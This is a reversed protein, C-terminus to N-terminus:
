NSGGQIHLLREYVLFHGEIVKRYSHSGEIWSEARLRYNSLWESDVAKRVSEVIDEVSWAVLVPAPEPVLWDTSRPDYSMIVPVGAAIGEPATGGFCPLAIQDFLVDVSKQMKYLAAKPLPDIWRVRDYVGLERALTRSDELQMGWNSMLLVFDDGLIRRLEPLARIYKDTGKIAWDHRLPCFFVKASGLKRHLLDYKGKKARISREDIPHLMPSYRTVHIKQAYELCDGNTIFTHEALNYALATMRSLGDNGQTYARLTGHEFAVYPVGCLMPLIPDTSYAQVLDYEKLLERLAPTILHRYNELDGGTLQDKRDPFRVRFLDVLEKARKGFPDIEYGFAWTAIAEIIAAILRIGAIAPLTAAVVCLGLLSGPAAAGPVYRRVWAEIRTVVNSAFAATRVRRVLGKIATGASVRVKQRGTPEVTHNEVALASWCQDAVESSGSRKALLYEVCLGFPGQAFWRPREYGKLDLAYWRPRFQDGVSGEFDCDEWEPCGMVHYYDYCLVDCDLGAENLLKANNYGNNAVNGIHLIRPSRGHSRRFAEIWGQGAPASASVPSQESM